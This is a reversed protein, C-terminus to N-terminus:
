IVFHTRATRAGYISRQCGQCKEVLTYSGRIGANENVKYLEILVPSYDYHERQEDKLYGEYYQNFRISVDEKDRM